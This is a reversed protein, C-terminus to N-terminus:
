YNRIQADETKSISWILRNKTDIKDTVKTYDLIHIKGTIKEIKWELIGLLEEPEIGLKHGNYIIDGKIEEELQPYVRWEFKTDRKTVIFDM